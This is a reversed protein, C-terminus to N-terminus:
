HMIPNMFVLLYIIYYFLPYTNYSINIPSNINEDIFLIFFMISKIYQSNYNNSIYYFIEDSNMIVYTIRGVNYCNNTQIESYSYYVMLSLKWVGLFSSTLEYDYYHFLIIKCFLHISM